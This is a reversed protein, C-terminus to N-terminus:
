GHQGLRELVVNRTEVAAGAHLVLQGRLLYYGLTAPSTAAGRVVSGTFSYFEGHLTRTTFSVANNAASGSIFDYTLPTSASHERESRKLLYGRLAHDEVYLEIVEGTEGFQYEGDADTPLTSRGSKAGPAVAAPAPSPRQHLTPTQQMALFLALAWGFM